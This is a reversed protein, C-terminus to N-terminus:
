SVEEEAASQQGLAAVLRTRARSLRSRAADASVHLVEAIEAPQMEHWLSLQLVEQDDLSLGDLARLVADVQAPDVSEDHLEAAARHRLARFRDEATRRRAQARVANRSHQRATGFLWARELGVPVAAFKQWATAFTSAVIPEVEDAPVLTRVYGRVTPVHVRFFLEFHDDEGPARAPSM